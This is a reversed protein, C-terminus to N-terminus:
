KGNSSRDPLLQWPLFSFCEMVSYIPILSVERLDLTAITNCLEPSIRCFIPVFTYCWYCKLCWEHHFCFYPLTLWHSFASTQPSVFAVLAFGNVVIKLRIRKRPVFLHRLGVPNPVFNIGRTRGLVM